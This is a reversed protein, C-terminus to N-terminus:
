RRMNALDQAYQRNGDDEEFVPVLNSKHMAAVGLLKREGTYQKTAMAPANGIGDDGSPYDPTERRYAPSQDNHKRSTQTIKKNGMIEAVYDDFSIKKQHTRRLVRNYEVWQDWLQKRKAQSIKTKRKRTNITNLAPSELHM